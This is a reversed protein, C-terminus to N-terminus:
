RPVVLVAKHARRAAIEVLEIFFYISLAESICVLKLRIHKTTRIICNPLCSVTKSLKDLAYEGSRGHYQFCNGGSSRRVGFSAGGVAGVGVGAGFQSLEASQPRNLFPSSRSRKTFFQASHPRGRTNYNNPNNGSPAQYLNTQSSYKPRPKQREVLNIQTHFILTWNVNCIKFTKLMSWVWRRGECAYIWVVCNLCM